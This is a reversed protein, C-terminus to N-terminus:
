PTPGGGPHVGQPGGEQVWGVKAPPAGGADVGEKEQRLAEANSPLGYSARIRDVEHMVDDIIGVNITVNRYEIWFAWANVALTALALGFHITWHWDQWQVAAGAAAAAIPTLMALLAPPFTRRKLDRTLKPLPADPIGYALAVEKVWRGTGLFYIFILCHVGLTFLVSFLALTFHLLYVSGDASRLGNTAQSALGVGFTTLLALWTVPALVALIQKM